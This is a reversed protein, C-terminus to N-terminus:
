ALAAAILDVSGGAGSINTSKLYSITLKQGASAAKFTITYLNTYLATGSATAVYDAASGDSLHATLTGGSSYGGAYVYLTRTTTSAPVTFSYGAGLVNNAWIYGDDGSDSALPTGDTWSVDRSPDYWSGYGGSGLRTVNSLQSGGTAKHDFSSAVNGTGWHAWDSTGLTTLNYGSGAAAQSGVLSGAGAVPIYVSFTGLSSVPLAFNGSTDAVQNSQLAITYTGNSASSWGGSPAPISYTAVVTPSDALGTSVLTADQSYGTGTVLLNSNGLTSANVAVNDSYTVTFQYAASTAAALTPAGTVKATPPTTDAVPAGALAAAILEVAGNVGNVDSTNVCSVTLLQGASSAHYTITYLNTYLGSGSATAVYDAASGDSLHATLTMEDSYGGAYVYLTRTTTDAPVTFSFGAGLASNAFIYADDGSDSALPTGDTWTVNRSANHSQGYVGSGITTVNSIQSGGTAKHDFAGYVEGTGWHAWDSTGLTTLNYSAAATAQSGALSGAGPLPINVSFTGLNSVPLAFNGSTDAVQNAELAITYTGNSSNSWGGTPAPVSYTAVVTPGNTLGTSVLTAKQSYGSSTVLLNNNGLSSANVAVNDTYTVSFTHPSSGAVTISPASSVTGTPPTTDRAGSVADAVAALASWTSSNLGLNSLIGSVNSIAIGSVGTHYITDFLVMANLLEGETNPHYQVGDGAITSYLSAEWNLARWAEGVPAVVASGAGDATNIDGAALNYNTQLQNQMDTPDAFYTPYDSNAAGRAWTEYLVGQVSPSNARVDNFLQLADARFLPVNGELATADTPRTSYEQMVVDSWQQGAPLSSDIINSNGDSAITSLQDALTEGLLIQEHVNPASFGDAVAISGLTAPMNYQPGDTTNYTFSNGFFLLNLPPNGSLLQRSELPESTVLRCQCRHGARRLTRPSAPVM